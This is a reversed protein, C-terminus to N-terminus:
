EPLIPKCKKFLDQARTDSLRGLDFCAEYPKNTTPDIGCVLGGDDMCKEWRKNKSQLSEARNEDKPPKVPSDNQRPPSEQYGISPRLNIELHEINVLNLFTVGGFAFGAISLVTILVPRM